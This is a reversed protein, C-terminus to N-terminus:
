GTVATTMDDPGSLYSSERRREKDAQKKEENIKNTKCRWVRTQKHDEAWKGRRDYGTLLLQCNHHQQWHTNGKNKKQQNVIIKPDNCSHLHQHNSTGCCCKWLERGYYFWSLNGVDPWVWSLQSCNLSVCVCCVSMRELTILTSFQNFNIFYCHHSGWASSLVELKLGQGSSWEDHRHTDAKSRLKKWPTHTKTTHMDTHSEQLTQDFGPLQLGWQFPTVCVSFAPTM